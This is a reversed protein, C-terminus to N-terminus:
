KRAKYSKNKRSKSKSQKKSSRKQKRNARKGSPYSTYAQGLVGTHSPGGAGTGYAPAPAPAPAYLPTPTTGLKSAGIGSLAYAGRDLRSSLSEPAGAGTRSTSGM